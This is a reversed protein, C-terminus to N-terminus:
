DDSEGLKVEHNQAHSKRLTRTVFRRLPERDGKTTAGLLIGHEDEIVWVRLPRVFFSLLMGAILCLAGAWMIPVGHDKVVGLVTYYEPENGKMDLMTFLLNLGEQDMPMNMGPFNQFAYVSWREGGNVLVALKIAPNAGGSVSQIRKFDRHVEDLRVALSDGFGPIPYIGGQVMDITIIPPMDGPAGKLGVAVTVTDGSAVHPSGESLGYSSQFITFGGEMLPHNVRIDRDFRERGPLSVTVSSTYSKPRNQHEPYFEISFRRLTLEFGLPITSDDYLTAETVTQGKELVIYGREGTLLSVLGGALLILLSAHVVTSGLYGLRGKEGFLRSEGTKKLKMGAAGFAEAVAELTTHELVANVEMGLIQDRRADKDPRFTRRLISPLRSLSCLVLNIGFLCLLGIFLPSTYTIDFRFVTILFTILRGFHEQYFEASRGQPVITGIVAVVAIAVLVTIGFQVSKLTRLIGQDQPNNPATM